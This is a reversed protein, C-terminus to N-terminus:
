CREETLSLDVLVIVSKKVQSCLFLTGQQGRITKHHQNALASSTSAHM